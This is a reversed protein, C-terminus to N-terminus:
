QKNQTQILSAHRKVCSAEDCYCILKRVEAPIWNSGRSWINAGNVRFRMTFAGSGDVGALTSPM